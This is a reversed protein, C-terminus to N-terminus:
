KIIKQAIYLRMHLYKKIISILSVLLKQGNMNSINLKMMLSMVKKKVQLIM